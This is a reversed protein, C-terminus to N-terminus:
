TGRIKRGADASWGLFVMAVFAVADTQREGCVGAFHLKVQRGQLKPLFCNHLLERRRGDGQLASNYESGCAHAGPGSLRVESKSPKGIAGRLCTDRASGGSEDPSFMVIPVTFNKLALLPKPKM